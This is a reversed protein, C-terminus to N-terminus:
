VRSHHEGHSDRRPFHDAPRTHHLLTDIVAAVARSQATPVLAASPEGRVARSVEAVMLLYPDVPPYTRVQRAGDSRVVLEVPRALATFPDPTLSAVGATGTITLREQGRGTLSAEIHARGPGFRLTARTRWDAGAVPWHEAEAAVETPPAWGYAALVASVAYFGVDLLAGGGLHAYRRYNDREPLAGDFVAEVLTIDGLVRRTLLNELDRTRPHWRNWAAEVLLRGASTAAAAMAAAEEATMGLPKECLVHKGAALARITWPAHARNHLAVYVVDVREDALLADYDAYVVAPALSRARAPDRSAVAHLEVGGLRRVAPGVSARAIHGAGLFGWRVARHESGTPHQDPLADRAGFPATRDTSM